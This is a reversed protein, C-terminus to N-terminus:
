ADSHVTEPMYLLWYNHMEVTNGEVSLYNWNPGVEAAPLVLEGGDQVDDYDKPNNYTKGEEPLPLQDLPTTAPSGAQPEVDSSASSESSSSSSSSNGCGALGLGAAVAAASGTLELFSRRSLSSSM